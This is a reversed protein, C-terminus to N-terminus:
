EGPGYATAAVVICRRSYGAGYHVEDDIAVNALFETNEIKSLAEEIARETTAREGKPLAYLIKSQCSRGEVRGLPRAPGEQARFTSAVFSGHLSQACGAVLLMCPIVATLRKMTM